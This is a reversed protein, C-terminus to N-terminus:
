IGEIELSEYHLPIKVMEEHLEERMVIIDAAAYVIISLMENIQASISPLRKVEDIKKMIQGRTFGHGESRTITCIPQQEFPLGNSHRMRGKGTAAQEFAEALTIALEDYGERDLIMNGM